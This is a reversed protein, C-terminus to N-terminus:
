VRFRALLLVSSASVVVVVIMRQDEWELGIGVFNLKVKPYEAIEFQGM